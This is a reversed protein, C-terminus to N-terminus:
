PQKAAPPAEPPKASGLITEVASGAIIGVKKGGELMAYRAPHRDFLKQVPDPVAKDSVLLITDGKDTTATIRIAPKDLGFQGLNKAEYSAWRAAELTSIASPLDKLPQETVEEGTEGSETRHCWKGSKKIIGVTRGGAALTVATLDYSYFETLKNPLPEGAVKHLVTEGVEFVLDSADARGNITGNPQVALRLVRTEPEAGEKAPKLALTCVVQGEELGYPKFDTAAAIFAKAKLFVLETLLGEVADQNAEAEVPAALKWKKDDGRMLTVERDPTRVVIRAADEAKLSLVKKSPYALWDKPFWVLDKENLRGVWPERLNRVRTGAKEDLVLLMGRPSAEGELQLRVGHADAPIEPGAEARERFYLVKLDKLEKLLAEVAEADAPADPRGAAKLTWADDKKALDLTGKDNRVQIDTVRKTDLALVHKDRVDAVPKDLDKLTEADVSVVSGGADLIAHVTKEKLDAFSGFKLAALVEPKPAPAAGEPRPESPKAAPTEGKEDKPKEPEKAPPPPAGKKWLTISLRPADLGYAALDRAGDAIFAKVRLNLVDRVIKDTVEPDARAAMPESLVWRDADEGSRDLRWQGKTGALNIRVVDESKADVLTRSRYTAVDEAARDLLDASELVVVKPPDQLRVYLRSGFAGKSGIELVVTRAPHKDTKKLDATVRLRPADLGLSAPAPADRAGLDIARRYEAEVAARALRRAEYDDAPWDVPKVVRWKGDVKRLALKDAYTGDQGRVAVAVAEADDASGDKVLPQAQKAQPPKLAKGTLNDWFIIVLVVAAIALVALIATTTYRM